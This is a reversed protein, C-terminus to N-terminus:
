RNTKIEFENSKEFILTIDGNDSTTVCDIGAECFRKAEKGGTNATNSIFAIQPNVVSLDKPAKNCIIIDCDTFDSDLKSLDARNSPILIDIGKINLKVASAKETDRFDFTVNDITIKENPNLINSESNNIIDYDVTNGFSSILINKLNLDEIITQANGAFATDNKPVVFLEIESSPNLLTDKVIVHSIGRGGCGVLSTKNGDEIIAAFGGEVNLLKLTVTNQKSIKDIAFAVCFLMLSAVVATKISKPNKTVLVILGIFMLALALALLYIESDLRIICFDFQSFFAAVSTIYTCIINLIFVIPKLIIALGLFALPIFIMGIVLLLTAVFSLLINAPVSLLSVYQFVTISIPLTFITASLTQIVISYIASATKAFYKPKRKLEAMDASLIIGLTSLFSLQFSINFASFPNILLLVFAAIGLSNLADSKRFLIKSLLYVMSMIGARLASPSLGTMMIFFIVFPVTLLASRRSSFKLKRFLSMLVGSIISIHLGSVVFLHVVGSLKLNQYIDDPIADSDGLCMASVLDASPKSMFEYIKERAAMRFKIAYYYPVKTPSDTVEVDDTPRGFLYIGKSKYSRNSSLGYKDTPLYLQLTTSIKSFPEIDLEAGSLVRCKIKHNLEKGDVTDLEIIHYSNGYNVTREEIVRGTVALEKGDFKVASNYIPLTVYQYLCMATAISIFCFSYVANRLFKIPLITLIFLAATIIMVATNIVTNSYSAFLLAAFFSFGIIAFPRKM